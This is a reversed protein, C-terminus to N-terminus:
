LKHRIAWLDPFIPLTFSRSYYEEAVPYDGARFGLAEIEAARKVRQELLDDELSM